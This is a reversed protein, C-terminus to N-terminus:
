DNGGNTYRQTYGVHMYLYTSHSSFQLLSSSGLLDYSLTNYDTHTRYSHSLPPATRSQSHSFLAISIRYNRYSHSHTVLAIICRYYHSLLAVTFTHAHRTSRVRPSSQIDLSHIRHTAFAFARPPTRLRYSGFYRVCLFPLPFERLYYSCALSRASRGNTVMLPASAHGQTM